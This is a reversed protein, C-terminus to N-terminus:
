ENTLVKNMQKIQIVSSRQNVYQFNENMGFNISNELKFKM